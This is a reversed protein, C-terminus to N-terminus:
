IIKKILFQRIGKTIDIQYYEQFFVATQKFFSDSDGAHKINSFYSEFNILVEQWLGKVLMEKMDILFVLQQSCQMRPAFLRSALFAIYICTLQSFACTEDNDVSIMYPFHMVNSFTWQGLSEDNKGQWSFLAQTFLTIFGDKISFLAKWFGNDTLVGIIQYKSNFNEVSLVIGYASWRIM